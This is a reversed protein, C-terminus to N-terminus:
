CASDGAKKFKHRAVLATRAIAPSDIGEALTLGQLPQSACLAELGPLAPLGLRAMLPRVADAGYEAHWAYMDLDSSCM